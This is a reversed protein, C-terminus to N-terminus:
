FNPSRYPVQTRRPPSALWLRSYLRRGPTGKKPRWWGSLWGAVGTPIPEAAGPNARFFRRKPGTRHASKQPHGAFRIAPEARGARRCDRSAANACLDKGNQAFRGM